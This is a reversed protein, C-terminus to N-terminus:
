NNIGQYNFGQSNLGSYYGSDFGNDIITDSLWERNLVM